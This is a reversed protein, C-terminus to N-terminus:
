PIFTSDELIADTTLFSTINLLHWGAEKKEFYIAPEDYGDGKLVIAGRNISEVWHTSIVKPNKLSSIMTLLYYNSRPPSSAFDKFSQKKQEDSMSLYDSSSPLSKSWTIVKKGFAELMQSPKVNNLNFYAPLKKALFLNSHHIDRDIAALKWDSGTQTAYFYIVDIRKKENSIEAKIIARTDEIRSEKAKLIFKTSQLQSYFRQASDYEYDWAEKIFLAKAAAEQGTQIAQNLQEVAAKPNETAMCVTGWLFIGVMFTFSSLQKM